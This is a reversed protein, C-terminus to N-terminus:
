RSGAPPGASPETDGAAVVALDAGREASDLVRRPRRDRVPRRMDIGVGALGDLRVSIDGLGAVGSEGAAGARDGGSQDHPPYAPQAGAVTLEFEVGVQPAVVGHQGVPGLRQQGDLGLVARVGHDLGDDRVQLVAGHSV